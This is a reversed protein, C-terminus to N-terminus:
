TNVTHTDCPYRPRTDDVIWYLADLLATAQIQLLCRPANVDVTAPGARLVHDFDQTVQAIKELIAHEPKM